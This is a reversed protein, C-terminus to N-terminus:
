LEIKEFAGDLRLYYIEVKLRPFEAEIAQKAVRLDKQHREFSGAAGYAGCDEHNILVVKGIEHLRVSIGVQESVMDFDFVGGALSVRDYNGHGLHKQLWTDLYKQFRFDICHVVLADTVHKEVFEEKSPM